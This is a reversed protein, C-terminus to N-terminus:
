PLKAVRLKYNGDVRGHAGTATSYYDLVAVKYLAGDGGATIYVADAPTLVHTAQDYESWGTFTTVLDGTDGVTLNCDEDFWSEVPLARNGQTDANVSAWPLAVRLAGGQGPGSDGSNTRIVFRKLALDWATSELADLDSLAVAQGTSLSVYVWPNRDQNGLGGATADVFLELEDDAESLVIVQATAVEDVLGATQRLAGSCPNPARSGGSGSMGSSGASGASGGSGATEDDGGVPSSECASTLALAVLTLATGILPLRM